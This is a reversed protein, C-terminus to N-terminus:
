GFKLEIEGGGGPLFGMSATFKVSWEKVKTLHSILNWIHSWISKFM